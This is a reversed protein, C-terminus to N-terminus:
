RQKDYLLNILRGQVYWYFWYSRALTTSCHFAQTQQREKSDARSPSQNWGSKNLFEMLYRYDALFHKFQVYKYNLGVM